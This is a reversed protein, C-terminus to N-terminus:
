VHHYGRGRHTVLIHVYGFAWLFYIQKKRWYFLPSTILTMQKVITTVVDDAFSQCVFMTM